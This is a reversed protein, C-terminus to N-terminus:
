PASVPAACSASAFRGGVRSVWYFGLYFKDNYQYKQRRFSPAASFNGAGYPAREEGSCDVYLYNDVTIREPHSALLCGVLFTCMGFENEEFRVRAHRVSCGRWRLGSQFPLVLFDGPTEKCLRELIEATLDTLRSYEHGLMGKLSNCFNESVKKLLDLIRVRALRWHDDFSPPEEGPIEKLDSIATPKPCVLWGDAWNPLAGGSRLQEIHSDDLKNYYKKWFKAQQFAPRVKYDLPYTYTIDTKENAYPLDDKVMRVTKSIVAFKGESILQLGIMAQEADISGEAVRCFLDAQRRALRGLIDDLVRVTM